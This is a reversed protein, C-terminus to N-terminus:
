RNYQLIKERCEELNEEPEWTNDSENNYGLQFFLTEVGAVLGQRIMSPKLVLREVLNKIRMAPRLVLREVRSQRMILPRLVM